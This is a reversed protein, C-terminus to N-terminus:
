QRGEIRDTIANVTAAGLGLTAPTAAAVAIREPDSLPAYLLLWAVAPGVIAALAIAAALPWPSRHEVHEVTIPEVGDPGTTPPQHLTRTM